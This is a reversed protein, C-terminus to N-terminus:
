QVKLSKIEKNKLFWQALAVALYTKGTGAPGIAFVLDNHNVKDVLEQQNKTRATIIRGSHGHLIIGKQTESAGDNSNEEGQVVREIDGLTVKNNTKLYKVISDVAKVFEDIDSEDGKITISGNGRSSLQLRLTSPRTYRLILQQVARFISIARDRDILYKREGM